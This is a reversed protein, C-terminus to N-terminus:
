EGGRSSIKLGLLVGCCWLPPAPDAGVSCGSWVMPPSTGGWGGLM